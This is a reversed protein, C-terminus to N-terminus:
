KKTGGKSFDFFWKMLEQFITMNLSYVINQGSREDMVLGASKLTNLYEKGCSLAQLIDETASMPTGCHDYLNLTVADGIAVVNRLDNVRRLSAATINVYRM